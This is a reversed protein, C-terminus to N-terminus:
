SMGPLSMASLSAFLPLMSAGICGPKLDAAKAPLMFLRSRRSLHCLAHSVAVLRLDSKWMAFLNCGEMFGDFHSRLRSRLTKERTKWHRVPCACM